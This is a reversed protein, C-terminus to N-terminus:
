AICPVLQGNVAISQALRTIAATDPVRLEVYRLELRHLDLTQATAATQDM